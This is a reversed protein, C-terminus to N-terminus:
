SAVFGAIAARSSQDLHIPPMARKEQKKLLVIMKGKGDPALPFYFVGETTAHDKDELGCAQLLEHVAIVKMMDLSAQKYVEGEPRFMPGSKPDSPLFVAAKDTGDEHGFLRTRAHLQNPNLVPGPRSAGTYDFTTSGASVQMIVDAGELDDAPKMKVPLGLQRLLKYRAILFM